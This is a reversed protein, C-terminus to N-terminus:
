DQKFSYAADSPAYIKLGIYYLTEDKQIDSDKLSWDTNKPCMIRIESEKITSLTGVPKIFIEYEQRPDCSETAQNGGLQEYMLVEPNWQYITKEKQAKYIVDQEGISPFDARTDANFIGNNEQEDIFLLEKWSTVGDGIKLRNKDISFGPEGLALIPNNKQWVAELGRRLQFTTKIIQAM